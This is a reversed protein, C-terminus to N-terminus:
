LLNLFGLSPASTYLYEKKLRPRLKPHTTLAVDRGSYGRFLSWTGTTYFASHVRPGAQVPASFEGSIIGTIIVNTITVAQPETITPNIFTCQQLSAHKNCHM